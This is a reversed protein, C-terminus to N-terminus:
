RIGSPSPSVEDKISTMFATWATANVRIMGTGRNKSDRVAVDGNLLDAVEVCQNGGGSFSSTRWPTACEDTKDM